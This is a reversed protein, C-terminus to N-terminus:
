QSSILSTLKGIEPANIAIHDLEFRALEGSYRSLLLNLTPISAKSLIIDRSYRANSWIRVQASSFRLDMKSNSTLKTAVVSLTFTGM